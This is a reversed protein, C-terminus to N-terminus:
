PRVKGRISVNRVPNQPSGTVALLISLNTAVFGKVPPPGTANPAYYLTRNDTDFYWERGMDLEEFINEVYWEAGVHEGEGGQTGGQSFNFTANTGNDGNYDAAGIEYMNTYWHNPRWAHIVGGKANAYPLHPLMTSNPSLGVPHNPTSIRRPAGPACWYGASPTRDVCTGNVGIWFQGWSGEGTWADRVSSGNVIISMPWDVAPWDSAGVTYTTAPATPPWPGPIGNM